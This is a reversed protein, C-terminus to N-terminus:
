KATALALNRTKLSGIVDITKPSTYDEIADEVQGRINIWWKHSVEVEPSRDWKITPSVVLLPRWGDWKPHFTVTVRGSGRANKKDLSVVKALDGRVGGSGKVSVTTSVLFDTGERRIRFKERTVDAEWKYGVRVVPGPGILSRFPFTKKTGKDSFRVVKPM